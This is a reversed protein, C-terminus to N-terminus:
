LWTPGTMSADLEPVYVPGTANEDAGIELNGQRAQGQYDTAIGCANTPQVKEELASSDFSTVIGAPTPSRSFKPISPAASPSAHVVDQAPSFMAQQPPLHRSMADDVLV